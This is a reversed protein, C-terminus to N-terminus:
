FNHSKTQRSRRHRHRRTKRHLGRQTKRRAGGRILRKYIAARDPLSELYRGRTANNVLETHLPPLPNTLAKIMENFFDYENEYVFDAVIQKRITQLETPNKGPNEKKYTELANNIYDMAFKNYYDLPDTDDGLIAIAPGDQRFTRIFENIFEDTKFIRPFNPNDRLFLDYRFRAETPGSLSRWLFIIPKAFKQKILKGGQAMNRTKINHRNFPVGARVIGSIPDTEDGLSKSFTPMSQALVGTLKAFKNPTWNAM